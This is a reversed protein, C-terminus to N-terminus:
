CVHLTSHELQPCRKSGFQRRFYVTNPVRSEDARFRCAFLTGSRCAVKMPRDNVAAMSFIVPFSQAMFFRFFPLRVHKNDRHSMLGAIRRIKHGEVYYKHRIVHVQDMKLM